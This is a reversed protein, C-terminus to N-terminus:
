ESYFSVERKEGDVYFLLVFVLKYINIDNNLLFITMKLLINTMKLLINTMNLLINTM